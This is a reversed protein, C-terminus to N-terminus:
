GAVAPAGRIALPPISDGGHATGWPVRRNGLPLCVRAYRHRGERMLVSACGHVRWMWAWMPWFAERGTDPVSASRLHREAVRQRESSPARARGFNLRCDNRVEAREAAARVKGRDWTQQPVQHVANLQM